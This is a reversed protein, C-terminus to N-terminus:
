CGWCHGVRRGWEGRGWWGGGRGEIRADGVVREGGNGGGFVELGAGDELLAEGGGAREGLEFAGAAEDGVLGDEDVGDRQLFGFEGALDFVDDGGM